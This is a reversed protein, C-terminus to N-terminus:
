NWLCFMWYLCSFPFMRIPCSITALEVHLKCKVTKPVGEKVGFADRPPTEFASSALVKDEPKLRKKKCTAQQIVALDLSNPHPNINSIESLPFVSSQLPLRKYPTFTLNPAYYKDTAKSEGPLQIADRNLPYIGTTRFGGVITGITMSELWAKSFLQCFNYENVVQGPHTITFDHCVRRWYMKFPGFVGKDLPQTLHTTNPPLPFIIIGNEAALALTDPCYHSSHGDLLLLIPRSAPVYRLFQREFWKHFLHANIWGNDSFGYLTGPIEGTAMDPAMTKKRWIVMPPLAQGTASVCMVVTIQGKSGSCISLVNKTGRADVTKSHKPDLAFGTEDMNFLLSPNESLGTERLIRKLHEFYADMCEKTSARARAVSLSAPTRVALSPHRSCLFKNWWGTTVARKIGRHDLMMVVYIGIVDKRSKGYGIAAAEILFQVLEEEEKMSLLIPRGPLAGPRVKGLKHDNLTTRPIGYMLSAKSVSMGMQIASLAERMKHENWDRYSTPRHTVTTKSDLLRELCGSASRTIIRDKLPSHERMSPLLCTRIFLIIQIIITDIM